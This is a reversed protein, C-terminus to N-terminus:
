AIATACVRLTMELAPAPDQLSVGIASIAFEVLRLTLRTRDEFSRAPGMAPALEELKGINFGGSSSLCLALLWLGDIREGQLCHPADILQEGDLAVDMPQTGLLAEGDALLAAGQDHGIKLGPHELVTGLERRAVIQGLSHVIHDLPPVGDAAEEGVPPDAQAVISGFSDQAADSKRPSGSHPAASYYIM